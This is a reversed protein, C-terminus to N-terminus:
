SKECLGHLTTHLPRVPLPPQMHHGTYVMQDHTQCVTVPPAWAIATSTTNDNVYSCSGNIFALVSILFPAIWVPSEGCCELIPPVLSPHRQLCHGQSVEGGILLCCLRASNNQGHISFGTQRSSDWSWCKVNSLKETGWNEQRYIPSWLLEGRVSLATQTPIITIVTQPCHYLSARVHGLWAGM